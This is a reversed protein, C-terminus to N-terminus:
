IERNGLRCYSKFRGFCTFDCNLFKFFLDIIGLLALNKERTNTIVGCGKLLHFSHISHLKLVMGGGCLGLQSAGDFYVVITEGSILPEIISRHKKQKEKKNYEKFLDIVKSCMTPSNQKRNNFM